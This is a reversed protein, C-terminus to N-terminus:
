RVAADPRQLRRRQLDLVVMNRNRTTRGGGGGRGWRFGLFLLFTNSVFRVDKDDAIMYPNQKPNKIMPASFM